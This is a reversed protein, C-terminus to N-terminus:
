VLCTLPLLLSLEERGIGAGGKHEAAFFKITFVVSLILIMAIKLPRHIRDRNEKLLKRSLGGLFVPVVTVLFIHAMTQAFPMTIDVIEHGFILFALNVLFPITVLALLSNAVTLSLSMAVEGGLLFTILGSTSGGPCAALIVFGIKYEPSIPLLSMLVMMMSPLVLMQGFLGVLIPKPKAILSLYDQRSLSLGLGYMVLAVAFSILIDVIEPSLSM